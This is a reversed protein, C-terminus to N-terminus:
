KVFEMKAWLRRLTTHAKRRKRMLERLEEKMTARDNRIADAQAEITAITARYEALKAKGEIKEQETMEKEKEEEKIKAAEWLRVEKLGIIM